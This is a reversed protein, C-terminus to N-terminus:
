QTESKEVAAAVQAANAEMMKKTFIPLIESYVEMVRHNTNVFKQACNNVCVDENPSIERTLFTNTCHNFCTESIQNYLLLFDRFNRIEPSSMNQLTKYFNQRPLCFVHKSIYSNFMLILM